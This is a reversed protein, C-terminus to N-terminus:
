HYFLFLLLQQFEQYRQGKGVVDLLLGEMGDETLVGGWLVNDCDLVICKKMKGNGQRSIHQRMIERCMKKALSASYPANWCYKGRHDYANEMGDEAILRKLDLYADGDKLMGYLLLNLWDATMSNVSGDGKIRPYKCFYDEFGFWLVVAQFKEKLLAYLERCLKAGRDRYQKGSMQGSIIDNAVFPFLRDFNLCVVFYDTKEVKDPIGSHGSIFEYYDIELIEVDTEELPLVGNLVAQFCPALIINSIITVKISKM